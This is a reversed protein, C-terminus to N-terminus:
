VEKNLYRSIARELLDATSLNEDIAKKKLEKLYEAKIKTTYPVRNVATPKIPRGSYQKSKPETVQEIASAIAQPAALDGAPSILKVKIPEPTQVPSIRKKTM